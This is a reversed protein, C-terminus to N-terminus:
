GGSRWARSSGVLPGGPPGQGGLCDLIGENRPRFCATARNSANPHPTKLVGSVGEPSRPSKAPPCTIDQTLQYTEDDTTYETGCTSIETLAWAPVALLALLVTFLLFRQKM